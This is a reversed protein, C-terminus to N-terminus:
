FWREEDEDIGSVDVVVDVGQRDRDFSLDNISEQVEQRLGLLSRYDSEEKMLMRIAIEIAIFDAFPELNPDLTDGDTVKAAQPVYYLQYNGAPAFLKSGILSFGYQASKITEPNAQKKVRRGSSDLLMRLQMFDSPLTTVAEAPVSLSVPGEIFWDCGKSVLKSYLKKYAENAWRTKTAPKIFSSNELDAYEEAATILEAFTTM